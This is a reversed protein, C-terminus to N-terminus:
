SEDQQTSQVRHAGAQFPGPAPKAKPFKSGNDAPTPGGADWMVIKLRLASLWWNLTWVDTIKLYQCQGDLKPVMWINMM